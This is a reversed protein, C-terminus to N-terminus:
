DHGGDHEDFRPRPTQRRAVVAAEAIAVASAAAANPTLSVALGDPGDLMVEGDEACAQTPTDHPARSM